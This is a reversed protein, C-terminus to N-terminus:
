EKRVKKVLAIMVARLQGADCLGLPPFKMQLAIGKAYSEEIDHERM